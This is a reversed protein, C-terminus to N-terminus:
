EDTQEERREQLTKQSLHRRANGCMPCSCPRSHVAAMKGVRRQEEDPTLPGGLWARVRDVLVKAKGKAKGESQRREAKNRM